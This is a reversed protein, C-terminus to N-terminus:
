TRPPWAYSFDEHDLTLNPSYAPDNMLQEGWRSKLYTCEKEFRMQKEPTDEYGRTASEHHFLEALPTWINRYGRERVRLCFDVDNFAIALNKEDLGDVENFIDKKIVLCAATVASFNQTVSLRGAYGLSNRDFGKHSHGALGAIGLVIGAHQLTKNPYYLKAGVAGVGPRIAHSVMVNLWDPSIVEIDNNLLAIIEGQALGVAENNLYSYNFPGDDRIVRIKPNQSVTKLYEISANEDSGNDIILIEYNRYTTKEFISELCQKLLQKGNRTPIIISVLPLKNPLDYDPQYCHGTLTVKGNVGTRLFHENIAQQGALMAYPKADTSSATSQPHVRWHYLVRPVHVIQSPKVKEICRLALDYDQAGEFGLRFGGISEILGASYVGLHTIMNHSYFLDPNWDCKFYPGFRQGAEDLKDEDSYILCADPSQNIAEVIWFLANESLLDDHDLLAIWDGNALKLASNSAASIHGNEERFVVKIRSDKEKYDELILRVEPDTSADDAICLEWNPYIQNRVSEIADVLWKHKPNFTPMVVSILPQFAFNAQTARMNQRMDDTLTDYQLVWKTYDNRDNIKGSVVALLNSPYAVFRFGRGLGLLGENKYLRMAVRLAKRLGEALWVIKKLNAGVWRLPSTSRWSRSAYLESIQADRATVLETLGVIQADRATVLEALGVIQGDREAVLETLSVVQGDREAVLQNLSNIQKIYAIMANLEREWQSSDILKFDEKGKSIKEVVSFIDKVIEPITANTILDDSKFVTNRLKQDLFDERYSALANKDISLALSNALRNLVHEPSLVLEDYDVFVISNRSSLKLIEIIYLSWICYTEIDILGDRKSLSQAISLPNRLAVIFSIDCQTESFVRMWFPLLKATRPDKFCFNTYAEIKTTLLEKARTLYNRECLLDVDEKEIRDLGNWSKGCAGLLQENLSFIDVDEYFGKENNNVVGPMLNDGLDCGMVKMARTLASTGSRHMGLVVFLRRKQKM